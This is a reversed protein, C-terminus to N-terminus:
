RSRHWAGHFSMPVHHNLWIKALPGDALREGDLVAVFSKKSKGDYVQSLCWGKAESAADPHPAFIPESAYLGDGFDFSETRGTEADVRAVASWFLQGPRAGAVYGYRYAHCAHGANITPMEFSFGDGYKAETAKDGNLPLRYRRLETFPERDLKPMRGQMVVFIPSEEEGLGGGKESAVFDVVIEGEREFANVGHWMWRSDM